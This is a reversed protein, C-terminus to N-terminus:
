YPLASNTQTKTFVVKEQFPVDPTIVSLAEQRLSQLNHNHLLEYAGAEQPSSLWSHGSWEMFDQRCIPPFGEQGHWTKLIMVGAMISPYRKPLCASGITLTLPSPWSSIAPKM